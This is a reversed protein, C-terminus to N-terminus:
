SGRGLTIGRVHFWHNRTQHSWRRSPHRPSLCSSLGEPSENRATTAFGAVRGGSDGGVSNLAPVAAVVASSESDSQTGVQTEDPGRDQISQPPRRSPRHHGDTRVDDGDLVVRRRVRRRRGSMFHFIPRVMMTQWRQLDLAVAFIM